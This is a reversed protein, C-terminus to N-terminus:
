NKLNWCVLKRADRGYLRGNALAIPGRCPATLVDARALEQYSEPSARFLFLSGHEDLVILRGEALIISGCGTRDSTWQVKGTGLEICRLHAGEEQRGDFGYLYGNDHVSTNYHNSMCTGSQWAESFEGKNMRLALAGTGYCASFLIYDGAVVPSAANVSADMRSRFRKTYRVQGNGPDLIVIGERTLFIAVRTGGINAAVPSSYSAGQNTSRWIEAGTEQDFAVIGADKGGVNILLTNGELLPSTAVGFFGKPMSYDAKLSRLWLRRGNELDLCQLTGEAGLTFVRNRAVLPTSRPGDDMGFDDRYETRYSTKWIEDGKAADMCGVVEDNGLRHFVILREGAVVPGSFGAGVDKQWVVPPGDKSWTQLLGAEASAANRNPGLFQPWDAAAVLLCFAAAVPLGACRQARVVRQQSFM